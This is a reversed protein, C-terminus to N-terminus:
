PQRAPAPINSEAPAPSRPLQPVPAAAAGKPLVLDGKAGCAAIAVCLFAPAWTRVLRTLMSPNM